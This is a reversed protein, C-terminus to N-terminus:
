SKTFDQFRVNNSTYYVWGRVNERVALAPDPRVIFVWPAEAMYIKQVQQYMPIRKKLDVIGLGRDILSDVRPNVYNSYNIFSKSHFYLTNAYGPDPNWPADTYFIMAQSRKSVYDYFTGAPLKNLKLDVGIRRLSTQYITAIEEQEPVGANYSLTASFGNALGGQTLLAKAKEPDYRYIWFKESAAPYLTPIGTRLPRGYGQYVTSIVENQPFAYNMAQRVRVNDFPKMKANLEIWTQQTGRIADVRVGSTGALLKLERPRLYQAVDADGGQLLAVRQPSAPVEKYVITQMAPKRGWYDDRARFVAQSGHTLETIEYPGFGASRTKLFNRAWKDGGKDIELLKTSDYIPNYLNVMMTLLVPNPNRTEFSVSYPGEVKVAAPSELKLVNIFFGGVGKLAFHRDWTYKVDRATLENGWNSKVGRRLHFIAKRGGKTLEWSTALKPRLAWGYRENPHFALDERWVNRNERDRVRRFEVLSDYLMGIADTTQINVDFESDLTSPTGPAAVVLVNAPTKAEAAMQRARGAAAPGVIAAGAVGAAGAALFKRRDFSRGELEAVREALEALGEREHRDVTGEEV